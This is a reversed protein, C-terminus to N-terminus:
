NFKKDPIFEGKKLYDSFEEISTNNTPAEFSASTGVQHSYERYPVGEIVVKVIESFLQITRDAVTKSVKPLVFQAEDFVLSKMIERAIGADAPKSYHVTVSIGFRRAFNTSSRLTLRYKGRSTHHSITATCQESKVSVFNEPDTSDVWKALAEVSLKAVQSFQKASTVSFNSAVSVSENGSRTPDSADVVFSVPVEMAIPGARFTRSEDAGVLQVSGIVMLVAFYQRVALVLSKQYVM